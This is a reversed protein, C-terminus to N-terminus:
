LRRPPSLLRGIMDINAVGIRTFSQLLRSILSRFYWLVNKFYIIGIWEM